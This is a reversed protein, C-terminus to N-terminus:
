LTRAYLEDMFLKLEAFIEAYLSDEASRQTGQSPWGTKQLGWETRGAQQLPLGMKYKMGSPSNVHVNKQPQSNCLQNPMNDPYILLIHRNM